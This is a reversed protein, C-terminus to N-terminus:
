EVVRFKRSEFVRLVQELEHGRKLVVGGQGIVAWQGQKRALAPRKEIRYLPAEATRRFVSFSAAERGPDMGYDRWEGAAVMRGYVRLILDLERRDFFVQRAAPPQLPVVVPDFSM